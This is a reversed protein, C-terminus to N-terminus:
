FRYSFCQAEHFYVQLMGRELGVLEMTECSWISFLNKFAVSLITRWSSIANEPM